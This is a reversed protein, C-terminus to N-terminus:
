KYYKADSMRRSYGKEEHRSLNSSRSMISYEAIGYKKIKILEEVKKELSEFIKKKNYSNVTKRLCELVKMRVSNKMYIIMNAIQIIKGDYKKLEEKKKIKDVDKYLVDIFRM